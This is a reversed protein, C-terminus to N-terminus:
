EIVEDARFLFGSPLKLGIAEATKLNVVLQFKTPREVPLDAPTAGKLIKDVYTAARRFLDSRDPGYSLLGGAHVFEPLHFISPWRNARSFEAIRRANVVFIPAPLATIAGVKAKSASAFAAEFQDISRVELSHLAIGLQQAPNQIERWTLTSVADAPSWLVALRSLSPAVEKLLQLRKGALEPAIQTLGTVNGGPRSLSAILGTGVPDGTSGMVIPITKTAKAAALADPTVTVVLVDPKLNILEAVLDPLRELRGDAYRYELRANAGETWGLARLGDRFAQNWPETEARSFPSLLGIIASAARVEAFRSSAASLVSSVAVAAILERRRM